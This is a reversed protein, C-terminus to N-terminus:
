LQHVLRTCLMADKEIILYDKGKIKQSINIDKAVM